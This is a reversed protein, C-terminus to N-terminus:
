RRVIKKEVVLLKFIRQMMRIISIILILIKIKAKGQLIVM